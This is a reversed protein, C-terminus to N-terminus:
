RGFRALLTRVREPSWQKVQLPGGDADVDVGQGPRLVVSASARARAVRVAGTQVFVSTRAPTTEVAWTTGRVSAIALPTLIQFGRPRPAPHFIIFLAGSDLQVSDPRRGPGPRYVTGAAPQVTLEEGCHLVQENPNYRDPRLTCTNSQAQGPGAFLCVALFPVVAALPRLRGSSSKRYAVAFRRFLISHRAQVYKVHHFRYAPCLSQAVGLSDQACVVAGASRM